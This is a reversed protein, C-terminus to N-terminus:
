CGDDYNLILLDKDAPIKSLDSHSVYINKLSCPMLGAMINETFQLLSEGVYHKYNHPFNRHNTIAAAITIIFVPDNGSLLNALRQSFARYCWDIDEAYMFAIM